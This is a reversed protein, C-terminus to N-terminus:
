LSAKSIEKLWSEPKPQALLGDLSFISIENIGAKLVTKIDAILNVPESYGVENGLKGINGIMGLSVAAREGFNKKVIKAISRLVCLLTSQPMRKFPSNYVMFSIRDWNLMLVPTELFNQLFTTGFTYDALILYSTVTMVQCNESHIKKLIERYRETAKRFRSENRNERIMKKIDVTLATTNRQYLPPEMDIVIGPINVKEQKAWDFIRNILKSFEDANKECAWYGLEDPLLPWLTVTLGTKKYIRLLEALTSTLQNETVALNLNVKYKGLLDVIRESMVIEYNLFECWMSIKM